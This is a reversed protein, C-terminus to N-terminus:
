FVKLPDKDNGQGTEDTEGLAGQTATLLEQMLRGTNKLTQENVGPASLAKTFQNQLAEWGEHGRFGGAGLPQRIVNIVESLSRLNGALRDIQDQKAGSTFYGALRSVMGPSQALQVLSANTMGKLLPADQQIDQIIQVANQLIAERQELKDRAAPSMQVPLRGGGTRILDLVKGRIKSPVSAIQITGAKLQDAYDQIEDQGEPEQGVKPEKPHMLLYAQLYKKAAPADGKEVAGAYLKGLEEQSQEKQVPVKQTDWIAQLYKQADAANGSQIAGAYLKQLDEQPAPKNEQWNLKAQETQARLWEVLNRQQQIAAAQELRKAQLAAQLQRLKEQNLGEEATGFEEGAQGLGRGIAGFNGLFGM